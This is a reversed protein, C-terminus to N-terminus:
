HHALKKQAQSSQPEPASDPLRLRLYPTQATKGDLHWRYAGTPSTPAKQANHELVQIDPALSVSLEGDLALGLAALERTPVADKVRVRMTKDPAVAYTLPEQLESFILLDRNMRWRGVLTFRVRGDGISKVEQIRVDKKLAALEKNLPELAEDQRKKLEEPKLKGGKMEADLRRMNRWAEPQVAVGELLLTYAGDREIKIRGIYREPVWCAALLFALCVLAMAAAPFRRPPTRKM